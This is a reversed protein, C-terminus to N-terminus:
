HNYLISIEVAMIYSSAYFRHSVDYNYIINGFAANSILTYSPLINIVLERLIVRYHRFMYSHLLLVIKAVAAKSISTYSLFNNIVLERLIVCYHRFM